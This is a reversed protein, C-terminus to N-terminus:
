RGCSTLAAPRRAHAVGPRARNRGSSGYPCPTPMTDAADLHPERLLTSRGRGPSSGAATTVPPLRRDAGWASPRYRRPRPLPACRRDALSPPTRIRSRARPPRRPNRRAPGPRRHGPRCRGRRHLVPQVRGRSWGPCRRGLRMRAAAPGTPRPAATQVRPTPSTWPAHHGAREARRSRGTRAPDPMAPPPPWSAVRAARRISRGRAAARTRRLGGERAPAATRGRATDAPRATGPVTSRGAAM